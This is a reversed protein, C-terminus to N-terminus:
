LRSLIRWILWIYIVFLVTRQWEALDFSLIIRGIGIVFLFIIIWVLYPAKGVLAIFLEQRNKLLSQPLHSQGVQGSLIFNAIADWNEEKLAAGHDGQIYQVQVITRSQDFEIFNGSRNEKFKFGDHGASGLDQWRLVQFLKPFFAVVWDGTAVFNLVKEVQHKSFRDSWGYDTRVVSGAFVVHKFRCSPYEQLAKALLYTGNSHGVYHFEAKPYLALNETYQDMLWEVKNRRYFPLLFPLMPFYGYTSTETAYAQNSGLARIRRAIKKTWFGRDRIGHIVFIVNKIHPFPGPLLQDDPINQSNRLKKHSEKLARIFIDARKSGEPTKDMVIISSHGTKPVDLYVFDKGTVLDINDDPSVIDDVSGLLQVTLANGNHMALWQIRLQTIFPAGRRIKFILPKRGVLTMLNGLIVGASQALVNLPSLHHSIQWGRNMAALLIIRNVKEVWERAQRFDALEKEFPAKETEGCACVYVQRALLAGLSHGVLIIEKFMREKDLCDILRVVDRVIVLPNATSFLGAPFEPILIHPSDLERDITRCVHCFNQASATYAHLLVVLKREKGEKWYVQRIERIEDEIEKPTEVLFNLGGIQVFKQKESNTIM